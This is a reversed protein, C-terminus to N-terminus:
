RDGTKWSKYEEIRSEGMAGAFSGDKENKVM